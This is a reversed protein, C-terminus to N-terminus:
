RAGFTQAWLTVGNMGLFAGESRRALGLQTFKPSLINARHGSSALWASMIRRPASLAGQGWALNEGLRRGRYKAQGFVATFEKGCATHSFEGCRVNDALKLRAAQELRRDGTLPRLGNQSRAWNVLCVMEEVLGSANKAAPCATAPAIESRAATAPPVAVLLAIAAAVVAVLVHAGCVVRM